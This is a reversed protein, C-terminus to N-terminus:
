LVHQPSARHSAEPNVWVGDFQTNTACGDLMAVVLVALSLMVAQTAKRLLARISNV